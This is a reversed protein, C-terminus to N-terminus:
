PQAAITGTAEASRRTTGNSVAADRGYGLTGGVRVANWLVAEGAHLTWAPDFGAASSLDPVLLDYGAGTLAAYGATMYISVITELGQQYTIVASRDYDSQPVFQARLRLTPATAVTSFTPAICPAGLTLTRDAPARFYVRAARPSSITSGVSASLLQLDGPRLQAEPM